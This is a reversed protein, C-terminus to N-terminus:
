GFIIDVAESITNRHANINDKLLASYGGGLTILIPINNNRVNQFMIRDREKCGEKSISLKGLLDTKLIDVGAQYFVIDPKHIKIIKPLYKELELLYQSDETFDDFAIDLDSKEKKLPYNNKGHFSMTYVRDDNQFISATGNGQHVDLDVILVRKVRNESLLNSAAVALDNFISFGEGHDIYAHHTGGGINIGLGTELAYDSSDLTAQVSNLARSISVDYIPLGIKRVEKKSLKQNIVKEVYESSHAKKLVDKEVLGAEYFNEEFAIDDRILQDKLLEYKQIPFRHNDPLEYIYKSSFAIKLKENVM